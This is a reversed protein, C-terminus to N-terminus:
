AAQLPPGAPARAPEHGAGLAPRRRGRVPASRQRLAALPQGQPANQPTLHPAPCAHRTRAAAAAAVCRAAACWDFCPRGQGKSCGSLAPQRLDPHAGDLGTDIICYLVQLNWHAPAGPRWQCRCPQARLSGRWRGSPRARLQQMACAPLAGPGALRGAGSRVKSSASRSLELIAPDLAQVAHVGYPTWELSGGSGSSSDVVSSSCAGQPELRTAM